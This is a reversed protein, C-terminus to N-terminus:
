RPEAVLTATQFRSPIKTAKPDNDFTILLRAVTRRGDNRADLVALGEAKMAVEFTAVAAARDASGDAVFWITNGHFVNGEDETATIVLFGRLAPVYELSTLQAKVGERLGADFAFLPKLELEADPSPASTIDAVFARVKDGPERLGIVLERHGERERVALGEIKRKNVGAEDLGQAKLASELSRAVHWRVVSDDDIAPADGSEDKLRFRILVAKEDREADTKGSHSGILYYNGESDRAMGEWKPGTKTQTPFKPSTIPKGILRGSALDVVHLAPAKDHAVLFRRGDGIPEIGSAEIVVDPAEGNILPRPLTASELRLRSDQAHATAAALFIAALTTMARLTKPLRATM